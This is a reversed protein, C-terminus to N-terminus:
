LASRHTLLERLKQIDLFMKIEVENKWLYKLQTYFEINICKKKGKLLNFSTAWSNEGVIETGRYKVRVKFINEEKDSTKLLEIM